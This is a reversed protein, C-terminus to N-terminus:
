PCGNICIGVCFNWSLLFQSVIENEDIFHVFSLLQVQKSIDGFENIQLVFHKNSLKNNVKDEINGSM